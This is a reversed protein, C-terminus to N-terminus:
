HSTLEKDRNLNFTFLEQLGQRLTYRAQWDLEEVAIKTDLISRRIDGPRPGVIEIPESKRFIDLVQEYVDLIAVETGSGINVVKNLPKQTAM